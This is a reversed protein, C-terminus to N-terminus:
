VSLCVSVLIGPNDCAAWGVSCSEGKEGCCDKCVEVGQVWGTAEDWPLSRSPRDTWCPLTRPAPSPIAERDVGSLVRGVFGIRGM